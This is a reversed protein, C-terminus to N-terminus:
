VSVDGSVRVNGGALTTVTGGLATMQCDWAATAPLTASATNALALTVVNTAVSTTFSAWLTAAGPASRIQAKFTAWTLNAASGDPNTVTLTMSFDDGKYLYLDVAAPLASLIQTM